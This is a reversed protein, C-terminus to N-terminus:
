TNYAFDEEGKIQKLEKALIRGNMNTINTLNIVVNKGIEQGLEEMAQRDTLPVVGERGSEGAMASGGVLKGTNPLNIIAGTKLYPLQIGFIGLTNRLPEFM